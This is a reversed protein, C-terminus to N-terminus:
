RDLYLRHMTFKSFELFAYIYITYWKMRLSTPMWNFVVERDNRFLWMQIVCCRNNIWMYSIFENLFISHFWTIRNWVIASKRMKTKSRYVKRPSRHMVYPVGCLPGCAVHKGIPTPRDYSSNVNSEHSTWRLECLTRKNSTRVPWNFCVMELLWTHNM